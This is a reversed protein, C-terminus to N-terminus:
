QLVGVELRGYVGALGDVVADGLHGAALELHVVVALVGVVAGGAESVVNDVDEGHDSVGGELGLVVDGGAHAHVLVGVGVLQLGEEAAVLDESVADELGGVAALPEAHGNLAEAAINVVESRVDDLLELGRIKGGVADYDRGGSNFGVFLKNINDVLLEGGGDQGSLLGLALRRFVDAALHSVQSFGVVDVDHQGELAGSVLVGQRQQQGLLQEATAALQTPDLLVDQVLM